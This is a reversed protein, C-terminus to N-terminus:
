KIFILAILMFGLERDGNKSFFLFFAIGIILLDEFDFSFPLTHCEDRKFFGKLRGLQLGDLIGSIGSPRKEPEKDTEESEECESDNHIHPPSIKIEKKTHEATLNSLNKGDDNPPRESDKELLATGDYGDPISFKEKKETYYGRSYM